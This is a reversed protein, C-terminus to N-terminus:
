GAHNRKRECGMGRDARSDMAQHGIQTNWCLHHCRHRASSRATREQIEDKDPVPKNAIRVALCKGRAQGPKVTGTLDSVSECHLIIVSHYTESINQTTMVQRCDPSM